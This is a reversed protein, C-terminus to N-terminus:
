DSQGVVFSVSLGIFWDFSRTSVCIASVFRTNFAHTFLKCDAKTESRTFSFTARTKKAM